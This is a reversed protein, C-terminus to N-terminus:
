FNNQVKLLPETRLSRVVIGKGFDKALAEALSAEM